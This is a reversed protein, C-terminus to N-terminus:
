VEEGFYFKLGLVLGVEARTFEIEDTDFKDQSYFVEGSFNVKKFKHEMYVSGVTGIGTGEYVDSEFPLHYRGALKLDIHTLANKYMSYSAGLQIYPVRVSEIKITENDVAKFFFQKNTGLESNLKWYDNLRYNAALYFKQQDQKPNTITRSKSNGMDYFAFSHGLQAEWTQNYWPTWLVHYGPANDSKIYGKANADTGDVRVYSNSYKFDIKAPYPDKKKQALKQKEEGEGLYIVTTPPLEKIKQITTPKLKLIYKKKASGSEEEFINERIIYLDSAFTNLIPTVFAGFLILFKVFAHQGM